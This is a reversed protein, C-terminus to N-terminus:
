HENVLMKTSEIEVKNKGLMIKSYNRVLELFKLEDFGKSIISNLLM